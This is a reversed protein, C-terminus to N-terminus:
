FLHDPNRIGKGSVGAKLRRRGFVTDIPAGLNGKKRHHKEREIYSRLEPPVHPTTINNKRCRIREKLHTANPVAPKRGGKKKKDGVLICHCTVAASTRIKVIEKHIAREESSMHSWLHRGRSKLIRRREEEREKAIEDVTSFSSKHIASTPQEGNRRGGPGKGRLDRIGGKL